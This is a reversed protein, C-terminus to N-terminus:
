GDSGRHFHNREQQLTFFTGTSNIPFREANFEYLVHDGEKVDKLMDMNFVKSVGLLPYCEPINDSYRIDTKGSSTGIKVIEGEASLIITEATFGHFRFLYIM